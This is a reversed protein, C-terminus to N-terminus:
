SLEEKNPVSIDGLVEDLSELYAIQNMSHYSATRGDAMTYQVTFSCTQTVLADDYVSYMVYASVVTLDEKTVTEGTADAMVGAYAELVTDSPRTLSVSYQGGNYQEMSNETYTIEAADAVDYHYLGYEGVIQQFEECTMDMKVPSNGTNDYVGQGDCYMAVTVDFDTAEANETSSSTNVYISTYDSDASAYLYGNTQVTQSANDVSITGTSYLQIVFGEQEEAKEVAAAVIQHYDPETEPKERLLMALVVAVAALLVAGAPILWKKNIKRMFM